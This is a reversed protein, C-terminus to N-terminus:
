GTSARPSEEGSRNRSTSSPSGIAPRSQRPPGRTRGAGPETARQRLLALGRFSPTLLTLTIRRRLPDEEFPAVFWTVDAGDSREPSRSAESARLDGTIRRPQLVRIYKRGNM